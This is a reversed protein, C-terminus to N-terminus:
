TTTPPPFMIWVKVLPNTFNDVKPDLKFPTILSHPVLYNQHLIRLQKCNKYTVGGGGFFIKLKSFTLYSDDFNDSIHLEFHLLLVGSIRLKIVMIDKFCGVFKNPKSTSAWKKYNNKLKTQSFWVELCYIKSADLRNEVLIFLNFFTSRIQWSTRINRCKCPM